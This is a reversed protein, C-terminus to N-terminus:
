RLGLVARLTDTKGERRAGAAAYELHALRAQIKAMDKHKSTRVLDAIQGFTAFVAPRAGVTAGAKRFLATGGLTASPALGARLNPAGYAAVARGGSMRVQIPKPLERGSVDFGSGRRRVTVDGSRGILAPLTALTRKLAAANDAEIVLGGGATRKSSGRVFVGTDGLGALIDREIDLGSAIRLQRAMQAYRQSMLPNQKFGQLALKLTKGLKPTAMAFWSDAPLDEILTSSHAGLAQKGQPTGPSALDMVLRDPKAELTAVFPKIPLAGALLPTAIGQAGPLQSAVGRIMAKVDVFGLGVKGDARDGVSQKWQESAGLSKADDAAADVVAKFGAETGAVLYHDVIGNATGDELVTYDTGNYERKATQLGSTDKEIAERAKDDDKSEVLVAYDGDGGSRFGTLAAAVTGGLWPKVDAEYDLKSGEEKIADAFTRKIKESPDSGILKTFAADFDAAGDGEPDFEFSAYAITSAPVLKAPDGAGSGANSGCGAVVVAVLVALAALARNVSGVSATDLRM